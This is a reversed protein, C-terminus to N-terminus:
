STLPTRLHHQITLLFQNKAKDLAQLEEKAKKEVEYAERIEKTQEDVKQQLNKNFDKLQDYLQANEIAVALQGAIINLINIDQDSYLEGSKKTGIAAVGILRKKVYLPLLLSIDNKNLKYLIDVNVPRFEGNEYRSKMEDIVLIGKNRELEESLINVANKYEILSEAVGPKFGEKLLIKLYKGDGDLLVIGFKECHFAEILIKSVEALLQNINLISSTSENIKSLLKDPDYSKRYLFGKTSQEITKHISGYGLMILIGFMLGTIINANGGLLGSFYLSVISSFIVYLATILTLILGFVFSRFVVARVDMFRYKVISYTIVLPYFTYLIIPYPPFPINFTLLFVSGGGIFGVASSFFVYKLQSAIIGTKERFNRYLIYSSLIAWGFFYVTFYIYLPGADCVYDFIYKSKLDQVFLKTPNVIFFIFALFYSMRLTWKYEGKKNILALVFHMYLVPIFIAAIHLIWNSYWAINKASTTIMLFYGFGWVASAMNLRLWARNVLREKNRFYAFIGSGLAVLSGILLSINFYNLPIM